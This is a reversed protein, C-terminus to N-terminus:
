HSKSANLKRNIYTSIFLYEYNPIIVARFSKKFLEKKTFYNFWKLYLEKVEQDQSVSFKHLFKRIEAEELLRRKKKELNFHNRSMMNHNRFHNLEEAVFGIIPSQACLKSWFYWDGCMTMNLIDNSFVLNDVLSKKFVVASANPIVNKVKIYRKIFTTGSIGFNEKWINPKFESTWKIRSSFKQGNEDVDISQTYVLGVDKKSGNIFEFIRELFTIECSDDSEAIWIYDGKALEIGKQWQKFPSGSNQKNIIFHPVKPKKAYEALLEQSNDTSCDDLLIVEFNQYTQNFVSELRQQM